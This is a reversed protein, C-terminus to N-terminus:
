FAFAAGGSFAQEGLASGELFLNLREALQLALGAGLQYHYVDSGLVARGAHHWFIPGGFVRALAYPSLVDLLTTGFLLGLRLDTATYSVGGSSAGAARTSSASLALESTAILFPRGELLRYAAGIAFLPGPRLTYHAGALVLSGDVTAGASAQLTWRPTPAYTLSGLVASRQEDADAGHSFRLRTSTYLGSAGVNWRLREAEDHEALSCSWV